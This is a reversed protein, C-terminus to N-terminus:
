HIVEKQCRMVDGRLNDFPVVSYEPTVSLGQRVHVFAAHGDVFALNYHRPQDHWYFQYREPLYGYYFYWANYWGFDGMLLVEAPNGVQFLKLKGLRANVQQMVGKCPDDQRVGLRNQGVVMHNMYFSTGYFLFCTPKTGHSGTDCPCRFVEAEDGAVTPLAVYPNLLKPVAFQPSGQGQRGGYNIDMNVGKPFTGDNDNLYMQWAQALSRLNAQCEIRRAMQRSKRLAPLLIAVLLTIIAVVTLLEILTFGAALPRVTQESVRCHAKTDHTAWLM